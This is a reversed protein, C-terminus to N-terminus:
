EPPGNVKNHLLIAANNDRRAQDESVGYYLVTAQRIKGTQGPGVELIFFYTKTKEIGPNDIEYVPSALRSFLTATEKTTQMVEFTATVIQPPEPELQQAGCSTLSFFALLIFLYRM